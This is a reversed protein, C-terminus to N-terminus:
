CATRVHDLMRYIYQGQLITKVSDPSYSAIMKALELAKTDVEDDNVVYNVIGLQLAEASPINRGTLMMEAATLHYLTKLIQLMRM